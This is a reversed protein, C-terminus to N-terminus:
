QAQATAKEVEHSTANIAKQAKEAVEKARAEDNQLAKTYQLPANTAQQVAANDKARMMLYWVGAGLVVIILLLKM